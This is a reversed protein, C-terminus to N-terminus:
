AVDAVEKLTVFPTNNAESQRAYLNGDYASALANLGINFSFGVPSLM